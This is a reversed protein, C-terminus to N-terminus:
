RTASGAHHRAACTLRRRRRDDCGALPGGGDSDPAPSGPSDRDSPASASVFPTRALFVLWAPPRTRRRSAVSAARTRRGRRRGSTARPAPVLNGRRSLSSIRLLTFWLPVAAM